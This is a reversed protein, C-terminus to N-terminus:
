DEKKTRNLAKALMAKIDLMEDRIGSVESKLGEIEKSQTLERQIQPNLVALMRGCEEVIHEHRSVEGLARESNKKFSEIEGLMADRSESVVVGSSDAICQDARLKVFDVEQGGVNVKVDVTMTPMQVGGGQFSTQFLPSPNSVLVVEGVEIKPEDKHLIYFPSGARLGQFM